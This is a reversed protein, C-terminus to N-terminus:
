FKFNLGLTISTGLDDAFYRLRNLYDRYRTNFLNDVRIFSHIKYNSFLVDTAAKIGFLNFAEPPALFDFIGDVSKQETVWRYDIMIKSNELEMTESLKIENQLQYTLSGFFNNPPMFILDTNDTTDIGRLYSYKLLGLFSDNITFQSSIDLGYINADTQKYDFVFFPGRITSQREDRPSLFIYNKFRQHYALANLSFSTTVYWKYELTNKFAKEKQLNPDGIEIGSVGQHLGYSYLENIAPNRMAYGTNFSFSQTDTVDYKVAFLGSINHFRNKYRVIEKVAERSITAVDQYEYDYRLGFQFQIRTRKKSLTSFVGSKWSAYDPILPLIGTEPNNTNDTLVNQNGVKWTWDEEFVRTYKIDTNLTYQLLSLAPIDTRGSRRVDFEKRDNVQGAIVTELTEEENIFYTAKLKMLHHSVHQKPAEIENSFDPETFFPIERVLAQELDTLNGIHSGRLVGLRTNFSSAYFNLFLKEKWSKELQLSFSAEEVGTNNLYYDPTKRDGYKRLSGNVRWALLPSYKEFRTNLNQGRGNSEYAYNLQGHLHPEKSISKPELFIASGLNGGGYELVSAGKLVIIKDFAFPDIEPSHDNGWQQGSQVIGNNLIPLRNGYLGHVIPKAIGSGNKLLSVGVENELLGSLNKHTNEEIKKRNVSLSPQGLLIERKTNIVVGDLTNVLHALSINLLTDKQLSIFERKTECGIHSILLHYDGKCLTKFTFFGKDDTSTGKSIEEIFVTVSSLPLGTAEDLVKGQISFTCDQAQIFAVNLFLFIKLFCEKNFM